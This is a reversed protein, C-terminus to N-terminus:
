RKVTTTLAVFAPSPGAIQAATNLKTHQFKKKTGGVPMKM